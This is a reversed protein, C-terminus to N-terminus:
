ADAEARTNGLWSEYLSAYVGGAAVLDKHTGREVIRGERFVLV